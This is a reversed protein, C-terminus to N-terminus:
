KAVNRGIPASENVGPDFRIQTLGERDRPDIFISGGHDRYSQVWGMMTVTQGVHEAEIRVLRTRNWETLFKGM